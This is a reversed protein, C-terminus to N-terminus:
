GACAMCIPAEPQVELRKPAIDEGCRMCQGYTGDDIRAIAARIQALEREFVQEQGSLAEDQERETAQEAFGKSHPGSLENEVRGLRKQLEESRQVLAHRVPALAANQQETM